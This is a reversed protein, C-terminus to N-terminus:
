DDGVKRATWGESKAAAWAEEFDETENAFLDQCDDCELHDERAPPRDHPM